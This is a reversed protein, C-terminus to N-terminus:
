EDSDVEELSAPLLGSMNRFLLSAIRIQTENGVGGLLEGIPISIKAQEGEIPSIRKDDIEKVLLEDTFLVTNNCFLSGCRYIQLALVLSHIYIICMCM